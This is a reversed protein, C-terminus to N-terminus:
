QYKDCININGAQGTLSGSPYPYWDVHYVTTNNQAPGFIYKCWGAAGKLTGLHMAKAHGDAFLMNCTGSHRFRPMAGPFPYSAFTGQDNDASLPQSGDFDNNAWAYEMAQLRVDQWDASTGNKGMYGKEVILVKDSPNKLEAMAVSPYQVGFNNGWAFDSMDGAVSENMGYQRPEGDVPFSPCNFVGGSLEFAGTNQTVTKNGNKIYPNVAWHWTVPPTYGLTNNIAALEDPSPNRQLLPYTEDYDQVYMMVAIGLQKENSLCSTQRAKERAQAFVPFLIAALIAIIAIVVLLEILTFGSRKSINQKM